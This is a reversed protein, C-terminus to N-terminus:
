VRVRTWNTGAFIVLMALGRITLDAAMAYWAGVVGLGFGPIVTGGPLSVEPWALVAALPLRVFILSLFNVLAPLRTAGAGRLGGSFVMLLALPPQAFAVIRVLEATLAAVEPQRGPGGTFWDALPRSFGLFGAAAASMLVVCAMAAAWVSGRARREDRAGLFQGALTAAAIQFASGPLFALSEIAIAVSHAAADVNGVRNVISLFTLHCASNAAADVGAPLGTQLLRRLSDRHPRWDGRRPRLGAGPRALLLGVVVAGCCYGAFTGWALGEWGLRPLGGFGTALAFSAAANVLNVTTMALLGATMDGAGRLIAVGVHILMMLPLAPIVIGLYGVALDASAAPLGLGRIFAPGFATAVLLGIGGLGVGVLLAQAGFRRAAQQDGGGISRAVLATAAVAPVAFVAPLFALCYAVLGVAALAAEDAFLNGALWKDTFGVALALFQEGLVPLVQGVLPRITGVQRTVGGIPRDARGAATTEPV